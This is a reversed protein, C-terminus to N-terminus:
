QTAEKLAAADRKLNKATETPALNSVGLKKRAYGFVAMGIGVAVVGVLLFATWSEMGAAAIGFGLAILLVTLGPIFIGSAIGISVAGRSIDRTNESIEVKALKIETSIIEQLDSIAHGALDVTKQDNTNPM